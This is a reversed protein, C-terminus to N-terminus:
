PATSGLGARSDIDNHGKNLCIMKYKQNTWLVPYDGSHWIKPLTDGNGAATCVCAHRDVAFVGNRLSFREVLM